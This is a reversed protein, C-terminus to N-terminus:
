KVLITSNIDWKNGFEDTVKFVLPIITNAPVDKNITIFLSKNWPVVNTGIYSPISTSQGSELKNFQIYDASNKSITAYQSTSSMNVTLLNTSSIGNNTFKPTLTLDEGRNPINDGNGSVEKIDIASLILNNNIGLITISGNIDWKNGFEDTVKFVLPIITNAPVDKNITIFLSKNWPVVNTGIYSPISTSQGSELKNFQIYDASNKSITAYQSTSSMNVTLLNTSSIGNNTFKPTLTLDEGRNPINDGNGSVEKIDIASLILNAPIYPKESLIPTPTISFIPIPTSNNLPILTEIPSLNSNSINSPQMTDVIIIPTPQVYPLIAINKNESLTINEITELVEITILSKFNPNLKYKSVITTVGIKNTTIKGDKDVTAINEDSSEWIINSNKTGDNLTVVSLASVSSNKKMKLNNQNGLSTSIYSDINKVKNINENDVFSFNADDVVEINLIGKYNSDLNSIALITTTGIKNGTVKGNNVLAVTNDSSSWTVNSSKTNDKLVATGTIDAQSGIKMVITKEDKKYWEVKSKNAPNLIKIDVGIINNQSLNNINSKNDDKKDSLNKNTGTLNNKIIYEECSSLFVLSLLFVKLKIVKKM